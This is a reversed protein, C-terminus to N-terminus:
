WIETISAWGSKDVDLQEFDKRLANEHKERAKQKRESFSIM